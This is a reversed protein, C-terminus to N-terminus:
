EGCPVRDEGPLAAGQPAPPAQQQDRAADNHPM